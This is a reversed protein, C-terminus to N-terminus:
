TCAPPHIRRQRYTSMHTVVEEDEDDPSALPTWMIDVQVRHCTICCTELQIFIHEYIYLLTRTSTHTYRYPIPGHMHKWFGVKGISTDIEQSSKVDSLREEEATELLYRPPTVSCQHYIANGNVRWICVEFCICECKCLWIWIRTCMSLLHM